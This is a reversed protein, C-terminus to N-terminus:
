LGNTAIASSRLRELLNQMEQLWDSFEDTFHREIHKETKPNKLWVQGDNPGGCHFARAVGTVHTSHDRMEKAHFLWSTQDNELQFLEALKLSQKGAENIKNRLKGPSLGALPLNAGYYTNLEILFSEKAGFFHFLFSEQHARDFDDGGHSKLQLLEDLHVKAYRMKSDTRSRLNLLENADMTKLELVPTLSVRKARIRQVCKNPTM